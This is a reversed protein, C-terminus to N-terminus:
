KEQVIRSLKEPNNSMGSREFYLSNIQRKLEQVSWNGKMCEIEYFTRKLPNEIPFLLALHTFSLNNMLRDPPMQLDSPLVGKFQATASQM